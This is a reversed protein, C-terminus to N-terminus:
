GDLLLENEFVLASGSHPEVDQRYGESCLLELARPVEEKRIMLDLDLMPRVALNKYTTEVLAAGKLIIRGMGAQSLCGTAKKLESLLYLNRRATYRDLNDAPSASRERKRSMWSLLKLNRVSM